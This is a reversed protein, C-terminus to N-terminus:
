WRNSKVEFSVYDQTFHGLELNSDFISKLDFWVMLGDDFSHVQLRGWQTDVYLSGHDEVSVVPTEDDDEKPNIFKDEFNLRFKWYDEQDPFPTDDERDDGCPYDPNNEYEGTEHNYHQCGDRRDFFAQSQLLAEHILHAQKRNIELVALGDSLKDKM